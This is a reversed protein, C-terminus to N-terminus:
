ADEVDKTQESEEVETGKRVAILTGYIFILVAASITASVPSVNEIWKERVDQELSLSILAPVGLGLALIATCLLVSTKVTDTGEEFPSKNSLKKYYSVHNNNM